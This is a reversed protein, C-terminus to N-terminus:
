VCAFVVAGGGGRGMQLSNWDFVQIQATCNMTPVCADQPHLESPELKLSLSLSLFLTHTHLPVLTQKMPRLNHVFVWPHLWRMSQM